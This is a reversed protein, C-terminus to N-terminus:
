VSAMWLRGAISKAYHYRRAWRQCDYLESVIESLVNNGDSAFAAV